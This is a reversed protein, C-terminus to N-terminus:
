IGAPARNPIGMKMECGMAAPLGFRMMPNPGLSQTCYWGPLTTYTSHARMQVNELEVHVVSGVIDLLPCTPFPDAVRVNRFTISTAQHLHERGVYGRRDIVAGCWYPYQKRFYLVEAGDIVTPAGNLAGLMFPVGNADNWTTLRRFSTPSAEDGVYASDDQTRLFLDTVDNWHGWLHLGDGNTRWGLVKVHHLTNPRDRASEGASGVLILHHNAHDVLTIGSLTVDTMGNLQIGRPTVTDGIKWRMLRGSLVGYGFLTMTSIGWDSGGVPASKMWGDLWAGAPVYYRKNSRLLYPAVYGPHSAPSNACNCAATANQTACCTPIPSLRHVGPLWYLTSQTFDSPTEEGPAVTYVDPDDPDPRDSDALLPNAFISFTHVVAERGSIVASAGTDREDLGEDIDVTLQQPGTLTVM